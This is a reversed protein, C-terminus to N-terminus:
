AARGRLGVALSVLAVVLLRAWATRPQGFEHEGRKGRQALARRAASAPHVLDFEVTISHLRPEIMPAQAQEGALAEIPRFFKGVNRARDGCKGRARSQDVALDHDLVLVTM